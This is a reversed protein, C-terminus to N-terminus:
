RSKELAEFYKEMGYRFEESVEEGAKGTAQEVARESVVATEEDSEGLLRLASVVQAAGNRQGQSPDTGGGGGSGDNPPARNAELLLEIAETEAAITEPGTKPVALENLADDMAKKAGDLKQLENGFDGANELKQIEDIVASTREFLDQQTDSLDFGEKTFKEPDMQPRAQELSRTEDRLSIEKDIIKMVELIIEPPLSGPPPPPPGEESESPPPGEQPPGVLQEAWRDFTDALLEAHAISVGSENTVIKESVESLQQVVESTKMEELVETFKVDNIRNAYAALDEQINSTTKGHHLEREALLKSREMTPKKVESEM